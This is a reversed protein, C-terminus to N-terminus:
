VGVRESGRHIWVLRGGAAPPTTEGKERGHVRAPPPAPGPGGAASSTGEGVGALPARREIARKKPDGMTYPTEFLAPPPRVSGTAAMAGRPEQNPASDSATWSTSGLLGGPATSIPGGGGPTTPCPGSGMTTVGGAGSDCPVAYTKARTPLVSGFCITESAALKEQARSLAM